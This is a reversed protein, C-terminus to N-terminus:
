TEALRLLLGHDFKSFSDSPDLCAICRLIEVSTKSFRSNIDTTISDILATFIEVHYHHYCNVTKRMSLSYGRVPMNDDMRPVPISVAVCFNKVEELLEDWQNVRLNQLVDKVPEILNMARVINKGEQDLLFSLDGTWSLLRVMLHLIFVFEFTEMADILHAPPPWFEGNDNILDTAAGAEFRHIREDCATELANLVGEWTTILHLLTKCYSGWKTHAPWAALDSEQHKGKGPLTVARKMKEVIKAYHEQLLADETGCSGGVTKVIRDVHFFFDGISRISTAVSVIGSQFQNAFCHLYRAYPNEKLILSKLEDFEVAMNSVVSYGVGRLRSISLGRQALLNDLAEKMSAATDLTTYEIGLLREIIQGHKNVFRVIVSIKDQMLKDHPKDILVSFYSDGIEAVITQACVEACCRVLIKQVELSTLEDYCLANEIIPPGVSKFDNLHWNLMEVFNGKNGPNRWEELEYFPLGQSLLLRACSLGAAMIKSRSKFDEYYQRAINHSSNVGGVHGNFTKLANNWNSFGSVSIAHSGFKNARADYEDIPERLGPDAVIDDLTLLACVHPKKGPETITSEDPLLNGGSGVPKKIPQFYMKMATVRVDM